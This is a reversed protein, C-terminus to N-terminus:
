YFYIIVVNLDWLGCEMIFPHYNDPGAAKNLESPGQCNLTFESGNHMSNTKRDGGLVRSCRRNM